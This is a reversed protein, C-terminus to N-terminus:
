SPPKLARWAELASGFRRQPDVQLLRALFSGLPSALREAERSFAGALVQREVEEPPLTNTVPLAGRRAFLLTLGLGYLDLHPTPRHTGPRLMEPPLNAWARPPRGLQVDEDARVAIGFDAILARPRKRPSKGLHLLVNAPTLDLHLIGARHIADLGQLLQRALESADRDMLPGRAHIWEELSTDARELVLCPHQDCCFADRLRLVRPHNVRQLLDRERQWQVTASEGERQEIRFVKLVLPTGFENTVTHIRASQVQRILRGVRYSIAAGGGLQTGVQPWIGTSNREETM